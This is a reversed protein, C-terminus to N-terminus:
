CIRIEALMTLFLSGFISVPELSRDTRINWEWGDHAYLGDTCYFPGLGDQDRMRFM